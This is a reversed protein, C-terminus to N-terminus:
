APPVPSCLGADYGYNTNRGSLSASIVVPASPRRPDKAEFRIDLLRSGYNTTSLATAGSLTFPQTSPPSVLGRAQTAWATYSGDTQWSPSWNRSRLLSSGPHDPDALVQWQVCRDAGNSQTFVRMCSGAYAGTATCSSLIAPENAPSYLVNGSRVQRDIQALAQRVESNADASGQLDATLKQTRLLGTYVISIALGFVILVVLMEILTYGGEADNLGLGGGEGRPEHV